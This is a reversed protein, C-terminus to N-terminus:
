INLNFTLFFLFKLIVVIGYVTIFKEMDYRRFTITWLINKVEVSYHIM